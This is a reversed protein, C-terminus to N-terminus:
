RPGEAQFRRETRDTGASPSVPAPTRSVPQIAEPRATRIVGDVRQYPSILGM